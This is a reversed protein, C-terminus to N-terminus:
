LGGELDLQARIELVAQRADAGPPTPADLKAQLEKVRQEASVAAARARALLRASEQARALAEAKIKQIAANQENVQGQWMRVDAKCHEVRRQEVEVEARCRALDAELTAIKIKVAFALLGAAVVAALAAYVRWGLAPLPIM